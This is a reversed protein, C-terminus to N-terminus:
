IGEGRNKMVSDRTIPSVFYYANEAHYLPVLKSFFRDTEENPIGGNRVLAADGLARIYIMQYRPNERVNQPLKQDIETLDRAIKEVDDTNTLVYTHLANPKEGPFDCKKGNALFTARKLTNELRMMIDTLAAAYERGFHYACYESVTQAPDLSPDRMLEMAVAKNIDEFIGESYLAGGRCFSDTKQFQASLARPFPNAGFGGWPTAHYMSIEPFSVVPKGLSPLDEPIPANIDVMLYDIWGGDKQILPFIASWEGETFCDFRWCSLIIEIDPFHKKAIEAQKKALRYFGNAGWPYCRECTCGGQDYPWLFIYDLGVSSFRAMLEDFSDLLLAEAEQKSPCLETYYFGCLKRVYRGDAVSNEALLKKEAGAYYENTLRTLSTKMGLSRAKKFILIMKELMQEAEPTSIARFHHMDFWLCLASQGWLALSELYECIEGVPAAHYYNYFHNAFYVARFDSHFTVTRSKLTGHRNRILYGVAANFAVATNGSICIETAGVEIRYGDGPCGADVSFSVTRSEEGPIYEAYKKLLYSASNAKENHRESTIFNM